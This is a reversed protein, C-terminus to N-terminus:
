TMGLPDTHGMEEMKPNIFRWGLTTDYMTSNGTPFAREPKPVSWPARSMSEFGGGGTVEAEGLRVGSAAKAGAGLGSGCLRNVTAGAVTEPFGALLLSMRAVNRNDEGAQNACGFYVDEVAGPEVSTREMLAELVVAGLDDPRVPSLSGGQRGIPTRAAGVIWAEVM